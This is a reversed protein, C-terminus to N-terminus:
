TPGGGSRRGRSDFNHVAPRQAARDPALQPLVLLQHPVQAPLALADVLREMCSPATAATALALRILIGSHEAATATALATAQVERLLPDMPPGMPHDMPPPM